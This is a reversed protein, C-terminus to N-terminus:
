EGGVVLRALMSRQSATRCLLLCSTTLERLFVSTPARRAAQRGIQRINVFLLSTCAGMLYVGSGLHFIQLVVNHQYFIRSHSLLTILRISFIHIKIMIM